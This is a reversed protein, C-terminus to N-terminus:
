KAGVNIEYWRLDRGTKSLSDSPKGRSQLALLIGPFAGSRGRLVVLAATEIILRM